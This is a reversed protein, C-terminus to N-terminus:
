PKLLSHYIMYNEEDFCVFIVKQIVAQAKLFEQVAEIAFPAAEGKPFGYIGTSINPFSISTVNNKEALQLSNYYALRLLEKEGQQGGQWVPGVTHIM